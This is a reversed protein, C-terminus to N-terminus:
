REELSGRAFRGTKWDRTVVENGNLCAVELPKDGIKLEGKQELTDCDFAAVCGGHPRAVVCSNKAAHFALGGAFTRSPLEVGSIRVPGRGPEVRVSRLVRWTSVELVNLTDYAVVWLERGSARLCMPGAGRGGDLAVSRLRTGDRLDHLILEPRRAVAVLASATGPLELMSTPTEYGRDFSKDFWAFPQVEAQLRTHDIKLLAAQGQLRHLSAVYLLPVKAWTDADGSVRPGEGDVTALGLVNGPDDFSRVSIEFRTGDGHHAVSFCDTDSSHISLWRAGSDLPITRERNTAVDLCWIVDGDVHGMSSLVVTREPDAIM